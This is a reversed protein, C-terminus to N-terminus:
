EPGVPAFGHLAEGHLVSRCDCRMLREDRLRNRLDSHGSRRFRGVDALQARHRLDAQGLVTHALVVHALVALVLVLLVPCPVGLWRGYWIGIFEQPVPIPQSHTVWVALGGLVMLSALSVLLAPMKLVAVALGQLAGVLSGLLLMVLVAAPVAAPTGTLRSGKTMILAGAVSALSMLAPISLDIGGTILVFGQGITPVMLLVASLLLVELNAPSTIEPRLPLMALFIAVSLLLVPQQFLKAGLRTAPLSDVSM